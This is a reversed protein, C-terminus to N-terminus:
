SSGTNRGGDAAAEQEAEKPLDALLGVLSAVTAFVLWATAPNAIDRAVSGGAVLKEIVGWILFLLWGGQVLLSSVWILLRAGPPPTSISRVIYGLTVLYGPGFVAIALPSVDRQFLWPSLLLGWLCGGLALLIALSRAVWSRARQAQPNKMVTSM